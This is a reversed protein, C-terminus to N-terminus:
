LPSLSEALAAGGDGAADFLRDGSVAHDDDAQQVVLGHVGDPQTM